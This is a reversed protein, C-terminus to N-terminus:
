KEMLSEPPEIIIDLHSICAGQYLAKLSIVSDAFNSLEFDASFNEGSEQVALNVELGLQDKASKSRPEVMMKLALFNLSDYVKPVILEVWVVAADDTPLYNIQAVKPPVPNCIIESALAAKGISLFLFLAVLRMLM